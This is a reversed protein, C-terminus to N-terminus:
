ATTLAAPSSGSVNNTAANTTYPHGAVSATNMAATVVNMYTALADLATLAAIVATRIATMDAIISAETANLDTQVASANTGNSLCDTRLSELAAKLEGDLCIADIYSVSM